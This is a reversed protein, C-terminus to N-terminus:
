AAGHAVAAAFRACRELADASGLAARLEEFARYQRSPDRMEAELADALAEPTAREQLLEPVVERGLVLNPLMIFGHKIMRHGYWILIRPIVYIGVVPVGLLATELVATGSSVWAGDAHAVAREVGRAVDVNQLNERAIARRITAECRDDAAGFTGRVRPRRSQLTRYAAALVPLHRRLEGARSGPLLAVVGGDSPPAARLPRMRYRSALPHGFYEIRLGLSRYFDCQHRFATIPITVAAVNRAKDANDLWTGPPFVDVVPGAYRLRRLTNALRLNFVGFDVLVV